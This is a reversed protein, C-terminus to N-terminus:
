MPRARSSTCVATPRLTCGSCTRPCCTRGSSRFRTFPQARWSRPQRAPQWHWRHRFWAPEAKPVAPVGSADMPALVRRLSGLAANLRPWNLRNAPWIPRIKAYLAVRELVLQRAPGVDPPCSHLAGLAETAAASCPCCPPAPPREEGDGVRAMFLFNRTTKATTECPDTRSVRAGGRWWEFLKTLRPSAQHRHQKGDKQDRTQQQARQARQVRKRLLRPRRAEDRAGIRGEARKRGRRLSVHRRLEVSRGRRCVALDGCVGRRRRRHSGQHRERDVLAAAHREHALVNLVDGATREVVWGGVM